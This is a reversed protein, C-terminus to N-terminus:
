ICPVYTIRDKPELSNIKWGDATNIYVYHTRGEFLLKDNKNYRSYDACLLYSDVKINTVSINDIVSYAYGEQINAKLDKYFRIVDENTKAIDNFSKFDVPVDFYSAISEFDNAIFDDVYLRYLKQIEFRNLDDENNVSCSAVFIICFIIILKKM